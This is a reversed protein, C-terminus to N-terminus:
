LNGLWGFFRHASNADGVYSLRAEDVAAELGLRGCYILILTEENCRFVVDPTGNGSDEVHAQDGEIIFDLGSEVGADLVFRYREPASLRTGPEFLRFRRVSEMYYKVSDASLCATEPDLQSRIDWHHMSVDKIPITVTSAIPQIGRPWYSSMDGNDPNITGWLQCVQHAYKRFEPLLDPGYESSYNKAM